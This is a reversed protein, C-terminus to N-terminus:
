QSSLAKPKDREARARSLALWMGGLYAIAFPAIFLRGGPIPTSTPMAFLAVLASVASFAFFVFLLWCFIRVLM